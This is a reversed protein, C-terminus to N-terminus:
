QEAKQAAITRLVRDKFGEPMPRLDPRDERRWRAPQPAVAPGEKHILLTHSCDHCKLAWPGDKFSLRHGLHPGAVQEWSM